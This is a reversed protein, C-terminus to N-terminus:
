QKLFPSVDPAVNALRSVFRDRDCKLAAILELKALGQRLYMRRQSLRRWLRRSKPIEVVVENIPIRIPPMNLFKYSIKLFGPEFHLIVRNRTHPETSSVLWWWDLVEAEPDVPLLVLSPIAANLTASEKSQVEQPKFNGSGSFPKSGTNPIGGVATVEIAKEQGAADGCSKGMINSSNSTKGTVCPLVEQADGASERVIHGIVDDVVAEKEEYSILHKEVTQNHVAQDSEHDGSTVHRTVVTCTNHGDPSYVCCESYITEEGYDTVTHTTVMYEPEPTSAPAEPLNSVSDIISQLDQAALQDLKLPEEATVAFQHLGYSPVSQTGGPKRNWAREPSLEAKKPGYREEYTRILFSASRPEDGSPLNPYDGTRSKLEPEVDAVEGTAM